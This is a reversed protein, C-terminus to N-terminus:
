VSFYIDGASDLGFVGPHDPTDTPTINNKVGVLGRMDDTYNGVVWGGKGTVGMYDKEWLICPDGQTVSAGDGTDMDIYWGSGDGNDSGAQLAATEVNVSSVATFSDISLEGAIELGGGIILNGNITQTQNNDGQTSIYDGDHHHSTAIEQWGWGSAPTSALIQNDSSPPAIFEIGNDGWTMLSGSAAGTTLNTQGTGGQNIGLTASLGGYAKGTINGIVKDDANKQALKKWTSM